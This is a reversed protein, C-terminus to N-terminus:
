RYGSQGVRAGYSETCESIETIRRAQADAALAQLRGKVHERSIVPVRSIAWMPYRILNSMSGSLGIAVSVSCEFM